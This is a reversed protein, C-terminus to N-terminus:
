LQLVLKGFHQNHQMRALTAEIERFPFVEIPLRLRGDELAPTLDQQVRRAIDRVEGLSRTRFTVGVYNLRRLAHLDFDFDARAGGLRGVNVIRGAVRTALMTQRFIPGAVQDITLDVGRDSTAALLQVVWSPDKYDLSLDAGYEKLQERRRADGSTGAVLSAGFLKAIQLGM